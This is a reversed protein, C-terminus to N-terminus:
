GGGLGMSYMQYLGVTFIYGVVVLLWMLVCAHYYYQIWLIHVVEVIDFVCVCVTSGGSGGASDCFPSAPELGEVSPSSKGGWM